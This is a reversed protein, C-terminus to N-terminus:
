NTRLVEVLLDWFRKVTPIDVFEEPSHVKGLTPGLSVIQVDPIKNAFVACELGAHITKIEPEKGFLKLYKSKVLQLLSTDFKPEWAPYRNTMEAKAGALAFVSELVQLTNDMQSDVSSRFMATVTVMNGKQQIVGVNNSTQVMASNNPDMRLVGHPLASIMQLLRRQCGPTMVKDDKLKGKSKWTISFQDVGALENKMQSVLQTKMKRTSSLSVVAWADRPIANMANGGGISILRPEFDIMNMSLLYRVLIKIANGRGIHIDVGSHGGTLGSVQIIFKEMDRNTPKEYRLKLTGNMRGGGACGVYLSGEEESDLNLIRKSTLLSFDLASAGVFGIEEATTFLLELPGHSVETDSMVALMAAVGLGNDAGLTTGKATLRNGDLVLQIPDTSFDHSIDGRKECVMDLHGQLCLSPKNEFGTTAPVYVVVNGAQDQQTEM